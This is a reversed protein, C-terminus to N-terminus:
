IELAVPPPPPPHHPPSAAAEVADDDDPPLPAAMTTSTILPFSTVPHHDISLLNNTRITLKQNISSNYIAIDRTISQQIDLVM